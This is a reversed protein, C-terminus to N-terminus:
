LSRTREFPVSAAEDALAHAGLYGFTMGAGLTAGAGPYGPGFPSAAVNGCAVLGPIPRDHTDLVRGHEDTVPGGKTGLCGLILPVAYYPGGELPRLNRHPTVTPDGRYTDYVTEGRHFRPDRGDAADVNFEAVQRELGDADIGVAAALERLTPSTTMWRPTPADPTCTAVSYSDRFRQDFVLWCPQNPYDYGVPDFNALAKGLDNYNMAENVFRQGRGNVIIGGPLTRLGSTPRFLPQGDYTDGVAHIMPGWWAESMNGLSAGIEMAMLLGDGVNGPPSAPATMPVGLFQDVLRGSWEFGGSALVVGHSAAVERDGTRVGSVRGDASRVLATVGSDTRIDVGLQLCGHLLEGVLASGMGVIGQQTREALLAWDWRDLTDAGWEDIEHKTVPVGSHPARLKQRLTGLLNTDFLGGQLTRGGTHAGPLGPQYDPHEANITFRTGTREVVLDLMPNVHDLFAELLADDSRGLTNARLYTLADDRSDSLGADVLYRNAPAWISGGSVVSTGGLVSTKELVVVRLGRTAATLAAALGAAGSGVVVVDYESM